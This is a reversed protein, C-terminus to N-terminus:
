SFLDSVSVPTVVNRDVLCRMDVYSRVMNDVISTGICNGNQDYAIIFLYEGPCVYRSLVSWGKSNITESENETTTPECQTM